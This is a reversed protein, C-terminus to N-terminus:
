KETEIRNWVVEKESSWFLGWEMVSLKKTGTCESRKKKSMGHDIYCKTGSTIVIRSM